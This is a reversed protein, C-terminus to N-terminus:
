ARTSRARPWRATASSAPSSRVPRAADQVGAGHGGRASHRRRRHRHRPGHGQEHQRCADIRGQRQLLRDLRRVTRRAAGAREPGQRHRPRPRPLDLHHFRGAAARRLRRGGDGGPGPMSSHHRADRRRSLPVARGGRVRPHPDDPRAARAPTRLRPARDHTVGFRRAGGEGRLPSPTASPSPHPTSLLSSVIFTRFSAPAIRSLTAAAPWVGDPGM